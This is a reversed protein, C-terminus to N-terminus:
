ENQLLSLIHALEDAPLQGPASSQEASAFTMCSGSLSCAIRSVAGRAGMSITVFPREAYQERFELSAALLSLVDADSQPMVALKPVDAGLAQAQRLFSVMDARPPTAAFDHRSGVALCDAAHVGSLLERVADEGASFEVDILDACGSAVVAFNLAVYDDSALAAEGGERKTRITFLLPTEGLAERLSCATELLSRTTELRSAEECLAEYFDARWEVLDVPLSRLTAAEDLIDRQTKGVIPVIIKPRGAGLTVGRVTLTSM